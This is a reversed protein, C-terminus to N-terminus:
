SLNGLDMQEIVCKHVIRRPLLRGRQCLQRRCCALVFLVSGLQPEITAYSSKGRGPNLPVSVPNQQPVFRVPPHANPRTAPPLLVVDAHTLELNLNRQRLVSSDGVLTAGHIHDCTLWSNADVVQDHLRAEIRQEGDM